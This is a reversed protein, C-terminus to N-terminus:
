GVKGKGTGEAPAGDVVVTVKTDVEAFEAIHGIVRSAIAEAMREAYDAVALGSGNECAEFIATLDGKLDEKLATKDMM